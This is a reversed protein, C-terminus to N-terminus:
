KEYDYMEGAKWTAIKGTVKIKQHVLCNNFILKVWKKEQPILIFVELFKLHWILHIKVIYVCEHEQGVCNSGCKEMNM